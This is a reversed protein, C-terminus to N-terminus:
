GRSNTERECPSEDKSKAARKKRKFTFGAVWKLILSLLDLPCVSFSSFGIALDLVLNSSLFCKKELRTGPLQRTSHVVLGCPLLLM